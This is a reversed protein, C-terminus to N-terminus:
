QYNITLDCAGDACKYPKNANKIGYLTVTDIKDCYNDADTGDSNTLPCVKPDFFAHLRSGNRSDSQKANAALKASSLSTDLYVLTNQSNDALKGSPSSNCTKQGPTLSTCISISGGARLGLTATWNNKLSYESHDAVNTSGEYLGDLAVDNPLGGIDVSYLTSSGNVLTWAQTQNTLLNLSGGRVVVPPDPTPSVNGRPGVIFYILREVETILFSVSRIEPNSHALLRLIFAALIFCLVATGFGAAFKRM